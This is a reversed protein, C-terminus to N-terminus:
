HNSVIKLCQGRIKKRAFTRVHNENMAIFYVNDFELRVRSHLRCRSPTKTTPVMNYLLIQHPRPYTFSLSFLLNLTKTFAAVAMSGSLHRYFFQVPYVDKRSIKNEDRLIWPFHDRDRNQLTKQQAPYGAAQEPQPFSPAPPSPPPTKGILFFMLQILSLDGIVVQREDHERTTLTACVHLAVHYATCFISVTFISSV